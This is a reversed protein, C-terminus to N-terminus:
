LQDAVALLDATPSFTLSAAAAPLQRMSTLQRELLSWLRLSLDAGASAFLPETPHCALGRLQGRFHSQVLPGQAHVSKGDAIDM